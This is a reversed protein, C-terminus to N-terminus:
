CSPKIAGGPRQSRNIIQGGRSAAKRQARLPDERIRNARQVEGGRRNIAENATQPRAPSHGDDAGQARPERSHARLPQGPQKEREAIPRRGVDAEHLGMSVRKFPTHGSARDGTTSPRGQDKHQPAPPEARLAKPQARLPRGTTANRERRKAEASTARKTTSANVTLTHRRCRPGAARQQASKPATEAARRTERNAATSHRSRSLGYKCTICVYQCEYAGRTRGFKKERNFM